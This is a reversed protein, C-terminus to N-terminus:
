QSTRIDREPHNIQYLTPLLYNRNHYVFVQGTVTFTASEGSKEAIKEMGALNLCPMIIMSPDANGQADADFAFEWEGGSSRVVRGRRSTLFTGERLVRARGATAPKSRSTPGASEPAPKNAPGVVKRPTKSKDMDKIIQDVSPDNLGPNNPDPKSAPTPQPVSPAPDPAAPDAPKKEPQRPSPSPQDPKREEDAPKVPQDPPAPKAPQGAALQPPASAVPEATAPSVLFLTGTAALLVVWGANNPVM